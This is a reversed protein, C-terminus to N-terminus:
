GPPLESTPQGAVFTELDIEESVAQLAEIVLAGCEAPVKVWILLSGDDDWAYHLFREVHARAVERDCELVRAVGGPSGSARRHRRM